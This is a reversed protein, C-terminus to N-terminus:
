QHTKSMYGANNLFEILKNVPHKQKNLMYKTPKYPTQLIWGHKLLKTLIKEASRQSIGCTKALMYKSCPAPSSALTKILRLHLYSALTEEIEHEPKVM